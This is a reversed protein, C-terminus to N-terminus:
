PTPGVEWLIEGLYTGTRMDSARAVLKLGDETATPGWNSSINVNDLGSNDIYVTEAATGLTKETGNFVYRLADVLIVDKADNKMPKSLTATIKWEDKVARTDGVVLDNAYDPNDIRHDKADYKIDRFDITPPYEAIFLNGKFKYVVDTSPYELTVVDPTPSEVLTYGKDVWEKVQDQITKNTSLTIQEGVQGDIEFKHLENNGEDVFKVKLKTEVARVTLTVVVDKTIGKRSTLTITVEVPDGVDLGSIDPPTGKYSATVLRDIDNDTDVANQYGAKLLDGADPYSATISGQYPISLGTEAEGTPKGEYLIKAPTVEKSNLTKGTPGNGDLADFEYYAATKVGDLNYNTLYGNNERDSADNVYGFTTKDTSFDFKDNPNAEIYIRYDTGSPIKVYANKDVVGVFDDHTPDIAKIIVKSKNTGGDAYEITFLGTRDENTANVMVKIKDKDIDYHDPVETEIEFKTDRRNDANAGITELISYKLKSYDSETHTANNTEGYILPDSPAVRVLSAPHYLVGMPARYGQDIRNQMIIEYDTRDHILHTFRSEPDNVSWSLGYFESFGTAPTQLKTDHKVGVNVDDNVYVDSYENNKHPISVSKYENMNAYNWIGRFEVADGTEHDYFEYRYSFSDEFKYGGPTLTSDDTTGILLFTAGWTNVDLSGPKLDQQNYSPAFFNVSPEEATNVDTFKMDTIICKLDIYRGRYIAANEVTVSKEGNNVSPKFRFIQHSTGPHIYTEAEGTVKYNVRDTLRFLTGYAGPIEAVRGTEPDVGNSDLIHVGPTNAQSFPLYGTPASPAADLRNSDKNFFITGVGLTVLITLILGFQTRKKM